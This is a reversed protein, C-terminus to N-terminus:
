LPVQKSTWREREGIRWATRPMDRTTDTRDTILTPGDAHDVISPTPFCIDHGAQVAWDKIAFDIPRTSTDICALMSSILDTKICVAVGFLLRKGVIWCANDQEAAHIAQYIRDQWQRPQGQGLYLSAIPTPAVSLAQELQYTFGDVPLADDELVVSWTDATAALWEWVRRHNGECGLTGDDESVYDANVKLALREAQERRSVHSVIGIM